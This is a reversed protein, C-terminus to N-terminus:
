IDSVCSVYCNSIAEIPPSINYRLNEKNEEPLKEKVSWLNQSREGDDETSHYCLLITLM